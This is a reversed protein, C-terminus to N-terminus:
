LRSLKEKFTIGLILVRSNKITNKNKKILNIIQSAVYVGMYDNLKRGALIVRPTYGIKKSKFTLYYPGSRHM